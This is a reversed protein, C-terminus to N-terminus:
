KKRDPKGPPKPHRRKGGHPFKRHDKDKEQKEIKPKNKEQGAQDKSGDQAMSTLTIFMAIVYFLKKM